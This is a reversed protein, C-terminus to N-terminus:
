GKHRVQALIDTCVIKFLGSEAFYYSLTDTTIEKGASDYNLSIWSLTDADYKSIALTYIENFNIVKDILINKGLFTGKSSIEDSETISPTELSIYLTFTAENGAVDYLEIEYIGSNQFTYKEGIYNNKVGNFTIIMLPIDDFNDNPIISFVQSAFIINSQKFQDNLEPLINGSADISMVTPAVGDIVVFYTCVNGSADIEEIKHYGGKLTHDYSYLIGDVKLTVDNPKHRFAFESAKIFIANRSINQPPVDYGGPFAIAPTSPIYIEEISQKAYHAIAANLNFENFYAVLKNKNNIDFYILLKAFIFFYVISNHFVVM